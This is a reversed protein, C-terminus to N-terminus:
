AVEARRAILAESEVVETVLGDVAVGALLEQIERVLDAARPGLREPSSSSMSLARDILRDVPTHRREIVGIRELAAFPSDLLAAEHRIWDPSKVQARVADGEAYRDILAKYDRQWRNDPLRLHDDGFLAVAGDAEVIEGLRRLTEVRDMWHFARGITVLRFRGLHVGLDYSSGALLEITVGGAAAAEAAIRRMEPEPDIALVSGVLPAFAIALQGPGCGLDLLRDTRRLRCREAVLTILRGAYPPRGALYHQAASQFRRPQFPVPAIMQVANKLAITAFRLDPPQRIAVLLM